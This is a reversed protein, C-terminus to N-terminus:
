YPEHIAAGNIFLVGGRIEVRDGPLGAIRKVFNVDTMKPHKFVVVDGRQPEQGLYSWASVLIIDGVKLTPAMSQAPIHFPAVGLVRLRPDLTASDTPNILYLGALSLALAAFLKWFLNRMSPR